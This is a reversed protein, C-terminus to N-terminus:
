RVCVCVRCVVCCYSRAWLRRPSSGEVACRLGKWRRRSGEGEEKEEVVVSAAAAVRRAVVKCAGRTGSDRGAEQGAAM